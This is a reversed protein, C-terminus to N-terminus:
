KNIKGGVNIYPSDSKKMKKQLFLKQLTEKNSGVTNQPKPRASSNPVQPLNKKRGVISEFAQNDITKIEKEKKDVIKNIIKRPTKDFVFNLASRSKEKLERYLVIDSLESLGTKYIIELDEDTYHNLVTFEGTVLRPLPQFENKSKKNKTILHYQFRLRSRLNTQNNHTLSESHRRYLFCVQELHKFTKGNSRVRWNFESDAACVWPEFGNMEFFVSKKVAFVGEGFTTKQTLLKPDNIDYKDKFQSLMPKIMDFQNMNKVILTAMVPLMVDDSDFFLINDYKTEKVLTNRIIYTGYRDNFFYFKINKSYGSFNKLIHKTTIECNDIGLLIEYEQDKFSDVVTYLCEDIYKDNNFATIIISIM